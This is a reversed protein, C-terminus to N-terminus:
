SIVIKPCNLSEGVLNVVSEVDMLAIFQVIRIGNSCGIGDEEVVGSGADELM